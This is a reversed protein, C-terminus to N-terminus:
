FVKSKGLYHVEWGSFGVSLAQEECVSWGQDIPWYRDWADAVVMVEVDVGVDRCSSM